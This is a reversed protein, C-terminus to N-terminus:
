RWGQPAPRQRPRRRAKGSRRASTCHTTASPSMTTTNWWTRPVCCPGHSNTSGGVSRRTSVENMSAKRNSSSPCITSWHSPDFKTSISACSPQPKAGTPWGADGGRQRLGGRERSGGCPVYFPREVSAGCVVRLTRHHASRANDARDNGSRSDRQAGVTAAPPRTESAAYDDADALGNGSAKAAAGASAFKQEMGPPTYIEVLQAFEDTDNWLEHEVFRPMLLVGGADLVTDEDGVRFRVRGSLVINIQDETDHTHADVHLGPPMDVTLVVAHGDTESGTVVVRFPTGDIQEGSGWAVGISM